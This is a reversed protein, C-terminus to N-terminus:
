SRSAASQRGSVASLRSVVARQRSGVASQGSDVASQRSDVLYWVSVVSVVSAILSPLRAAIEIRGFVFLSAAMAYISLPPKDVPVSALLVDRGSAVQMAWSSYLAEDAHFRNEFAPPLRLALALLCVAIIQWLHTPQNTLQVTPYNSLANTPENTLQAM